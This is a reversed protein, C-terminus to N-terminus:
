LKSVRKTVTGTADTLRLIYVGAAFRSLDLPSSTLDTFQTESLVRGQVNLLTVHKSGATSSQITLTHAVPTPYVQWASAPAKRTNLITQEFAYDKVTITVDGIAAQTAVRVWGYRWPASATTRFRIGMYRDVGPLYGGVTRYSETVVREVWVFSAETPWAAKGLWSDVYSSNTTTQPLQAEIVGAASYGLIFGHNYSATPSISHSCGIEINDHLPRIMARTEWGTRGVPPTYFINRATWRLDYIGDLNLDLSDSLLGNPTRLVTVRDPIIDTYAVGNTQGAVISQGNATFHGSLFTVGLALFIVRKM